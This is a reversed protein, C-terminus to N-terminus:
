ALLIIAITGDCAIVFFEDEEVVEHCTVDPNATIIQAEPSLTYSKKFEFDGL